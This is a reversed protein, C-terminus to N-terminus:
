RNLADKLVMRGERLVYQDGNTSTWSEFFPEWVNTVISCRLGRRRLSSRCYQCHWVGGCAGSPHLFGKFEWVHRGFLKHLIWRWMEAISRM